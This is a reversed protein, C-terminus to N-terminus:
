DWYDMLLWLTYYEGAKELVVRLGSEDEAMYQYNSDGERTVKANYTFGCDKLVETYSVMDAESTTEPDFEVYFEDENNSVVEKIDMSPKEVYTAYGFSPWERNVVYVSSSDIVISFATEYASINISKGVENEAIYYYMVFDGYDTEGEDVRVDFGAAKVKAAYEKAKDLPIPNCSVQLNTDEYEFVMLIDADPKPVGETLANDPWQTQPLYDDLSEGYDYEENGFPSEEYICLYSLAETWALEVFGGDASSAEYSFVAYGAGEQEETEANETFGASSLQKAYAKIEEKSAGNFYIECNDANEAVMYVAFSPKPVLKTYKNNPWEGGISVAESGDQSSYQWSGDAGQVYTGEEDIIQMSGDSGFNVEYGNAKAEEMIAQKTAEDLDGYLPLDADGFLGGLEDSSDGGFLGGLGDGDDSSDDGLLGGLLSGADPADKGGLLGGLLSEQESSDERTLPADSGSSKKEGQEKGGCATLSLAILLAVLLIWKNKM